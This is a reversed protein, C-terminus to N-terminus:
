VSFARCFFQTLEITQMNTQVPNVALRDKQTQTFANFLSYATRPQFEPYWIRGSDNPSEKEQWDYEEAVTLIRTKNLVGEQVAKVILYYAEKQTLYQQSLHTYFKEQKERFQQISDFACSIRQLLGEYINKRHEHSAMGIIGTEDDTFAYFARNSCVMVEGGICVKGSMSKNYSNCFGIMLRIRGGFFDLGNVAYVGFFRMGKLDMGMQEDTLVMNHKAAVDQIMTVLEENSLPQYSDTAPPILVSDFAEKKSCKGSTSKSMILTM